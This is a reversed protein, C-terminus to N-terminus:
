FPPSIPAAKVFSFCYDEGDPALRTMDTTGSLGGPLSYNLAFRNCDFLEIWGTGYGSDTSPVPNEQDFAGGTSNEYAINMFNSGDNPLAGFGTIWRQDDAGLHALPTTKGVDSEASGALEAKSVAIQDPYTFWAFFLIGTDPFVEMLIGAGSVGPTGWAGNMGPNFTLNGPPFLVFQWRDVNDVVDIAVFIYDKGTELTVEATPSFPTEAVLNTSTNAPNFSNEYVRLVIFTGNLAPGIDGFFYRGSRFVNVPGTQEYRHQGLEGFDATPSGGLFEGRTYGFSSFGAGSVNGPGDIVAAYAGVIEECWHQAVLVYSTGTTLSVQESVDVSAIRNTAPAAASFSGQYVAIVVDAISGGTGFFPFDNGADIINYFGNSSVQITGIERYRKASSDCGEPDAAMTPENGEFAGSITINNALSSVSLCLSTALVICQLARYKNM